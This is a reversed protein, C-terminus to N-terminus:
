AWLIKRIGLVCGLLALCPILGEATSVGTDPSVVSPEVREGGGGNDDVPLAIDTFEGLNMKETAWGVSLVTDAESLDIDKIMLEKRSSKVYGLDYGNLRVYLFMASSPPDGWELIVDEGDKRATVGEPADLEYYVVDGNIVRVEAEAEASEGLFDTVRVRVTHYGRADYTVAMQPELGTSSFDGGDVSWEYNIIDADLSFSPSADITITDGPNGYYTNLTFEAFINSEDDVSESRLNASRASVGGRALRKRLIATLQPIKDVYKTHGSLNWPIQTSGCIYDDPGCWLGYKGTLEGYVYPNRAKLRGEHTRCVPVYVRYDSLSRGKCADPFLGKGEPLYLQPDTFLAVYVVNGHKFKKVAESVVMSGQSYGALVWRSEPCVRAVGDYYERLSSAGAKM